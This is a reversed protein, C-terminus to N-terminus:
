CLVLWTLTLPSPLHSALLPDPDYYYTSAQLVMVIDLFLRQQQRLRTSPNEQRSTGSVEMLRKTPPQVSFRIILPHHTMSTNGSAAPSMHAEQQVGALEQRPELLSLQVQYQHLFLCSSGVCMESSSAM